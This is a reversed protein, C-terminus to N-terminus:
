GGRMCVGAMTRLIVLGVLRGLGPVKDSGSMDGNGLTPDNFWDYTNNPTGLGDGVYYAVVLRDTTETAANLM